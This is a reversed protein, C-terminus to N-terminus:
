AQDRDDAATSEVSPNISPLFPLLTRLGFIIENRIFRRLLLVSFYTSLVGLIVGTIVSVAIFPAPLPSRKKGM